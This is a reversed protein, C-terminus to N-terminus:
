NKLVILEFMIAWTLKKLYLLFNTTWLALILVFFSKMEVVTDRFGFVTHPLHRFLVRFFINECLEPASLLCM